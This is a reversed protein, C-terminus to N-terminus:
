VFKDKVKLKIKKRMVFMNKIMISGESLGIKKGYYNISNRAYRFRDFSNFDFESDLDKVLEGLCVHNTVNFGRQICFAELSERLSDYALPLYANISKEDLKVAVIVDEKIDSIELLSKAKNNDPFTVKIFGKSKCEGIDM